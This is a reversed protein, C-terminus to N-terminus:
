IKSCIYDIHNKWTLLCDIMVGLFKTFKVESINSGMIKISESHHIKKGKPHFIMFHTKEVNLSMKNANLWDVIANLEYNVKKFVTPLDRGTCFFNSDDAFLVAFLEPSVFALDNIYVLFLLPGLNSGQPVGCKVDLIKSKSGNYEVFQKRGTLYSLIWDHAVGRIGYHYLEDLLISHDVTDFAKRFDIFLGICLEGREMAKTIKDTLAILAMYTSKNKQFGFQYEYLIQLTILYDYLREYMVKEIIKSFVSLLSIPRYNNFHSPDNSKYLPVIKALKLEQPFYGQILSLRCVHSIPSVIHDIVYKLAKSTIEDIGPAGEKLSLVIKRIESEEVDRLFISETRCGQLFHKFSVTSPPIKNALNPGINSFYENFKNAIVDLDDTLSGDVLFESYKTARKKKNIVTKIVDWTKKM